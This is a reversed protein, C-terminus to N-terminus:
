AAQLSTMGPANAAPVVMAGTVVTVDDGSMDPASGAVDTADNAQTADPAGATLARVIEAVSSVRADARAAVEAEDSALSKGRPLVLCVRSVQAARPRKMAKLLHLCEFDAGKLGMVVWTPRRERILQEIKELESGEAFDFGHGGLARRWNARTKPDANVLLVTPRAPGDGDAPAEVRGSDTPGIAADSQMGGVAAPVDGSEVPAILEMSCMASLWLEIDDAAITEMRRAVEGFTTPGTDLIALVRLFAPSAGRGAALRERGVPTICYEWADRFVNVGFAPLRRTQSNLPRPPTDQTSEM